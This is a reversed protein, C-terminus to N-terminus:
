MHNEWELRLSFCSVYEMASPARRDLSHCDDIGKRRDRLRVRKGDREIASKERMIYTTDADFRREGWTKSTKKMAWGDNLFGIFSDQRGSRGDRLNEEDSSTAAWIIDTFLLRLISGEETHTWVHKVADHLHIATRLRM